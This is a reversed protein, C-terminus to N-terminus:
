FQLGVWGEEVGSKDSGARSIRAEKKLFFFINFSHSILIMVINKYDKAM